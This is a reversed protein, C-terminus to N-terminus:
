SPTLILLNCNKDFFYVFFNEATNKEKLKQESSISSGSGNGSEIFGSGCSQYECLREFPFSTLCSSKHLTRTKIAKGM